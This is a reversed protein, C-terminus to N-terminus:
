FMFSMLSFHCFCVFCIVFLHCPCIVPVFSLVLFFSLILHCFFVVIWVAFYINEHVGTHPQLHRRFTNSFTHTLEKKPSPPRCITPFTCILSNRTLSNSTLLNHTLLNHTLFHAHSNHPTLLRWAQWMFHLGIDGFAVCAVFVAAAVVADFPVWARWWLWGLAMLAVGEVCVSPRHRWTGRRGCLTFALIALHWAHWALHCQIDGLAVGAVGFAVPHSWTGPRACLTFTSTVLHWAQWALHCQIDGLAVGALCVAAVVADFRVWPRWWLWGLAM